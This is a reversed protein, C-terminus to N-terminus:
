GKSFNLFNKWIVSFPKVPSFFFFHSVWFREIPVPTFKGVGGGWGGVIQKCVLFYLCQVEGLGPTSNSWHAKASLSVNLLTVDYRVHRQCMGYWTLPLLLSMKGDTLRIYRDLNRYRRIENYIQKAFDLVQHLYPSFTKEKERRWGESLYSLISPPLAQKFVM